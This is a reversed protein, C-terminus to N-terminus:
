LFFPIYEYSVKQDYEAGNTTVIPIFVPLSSRDKSIDIEVLIRAYALHERNQTLLDSTLPNGIMSGIKSLAEETWYDVPLNPLQVWIPVKHILEDGFNFERPMEKLLLPRNYILYPGENVVRTRDEDSNFKFVLWGSPHLHLKVRTKWKAMADRIAKIGPFRGGVYGILAFGWQKELDLCDKVEMRVKGDGKGKSSLKFGQLPTKAEQAAAAYTLNPTVLNVPTASDLATMVPATEGSSMESINISKSPLPPFDVDSIKIELVMDSPNLPQRFKKKKTNAM